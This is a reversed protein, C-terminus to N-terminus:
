GVVLVEFLPNFYCKNGEVLEEGFSKLDFGGGSLLAIKPLLELGGLGKKALQLSHGSSSSRPQKTM